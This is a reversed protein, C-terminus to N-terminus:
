YTKSQSIRLFFVPPTLLNNNEGEFIKNSLQGIGQFKSTSSSVLTEPRLSTKGCAARALFM